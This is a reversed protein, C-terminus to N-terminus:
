SNALLKKQIEFMLIGAAVSVNLSTINGSLPISILFDCKKQILNRLGSGESGLVLATKKPYDQESYILSSEADAGYIWVPIEKLQDLTRALNTVLSVPISEAAGASAKLVTPTILASGREPLIVGKVNACAATRLIAGLNQPDQIQDLVLILGGTATSLDSLITEFSTYFFEETKLVVGQHQVSNSIKFLEDKSKEEIPIKEQQAINLIQKFEPSLHSRHILLKIARRKKALLLQLVPQIGYVFEYDM